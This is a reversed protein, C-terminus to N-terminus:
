GTEPEDSIRKLPTVKISTVQHKRKKMVEFQFQHFNLISRRLLLHRELHGATRWASRFALLGNACAMGENM